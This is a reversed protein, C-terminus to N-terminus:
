PSVEIKCQVCVATISLTSPFFIERRGSIKNLWFTREIPRWSIKFGISIKLRKWIAICVFFISFQHRTCTFASHFQKQFYQCFNEGPVLSSPLHRHWAVSGFRIKFSIVFICNSRACFSTSVFLVFPHDEIPFESCTTLKKKMDKYYFVFAYNYELM